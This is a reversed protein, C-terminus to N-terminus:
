SVVHVPLRTVFTTGHGLTSEVQISGGHEDIISQVVSLGLGTGQGLAKTTFFPDFIKAREQESIGCGSDAVTLIVESDTSQLRVSLTGGNPMVHIANMVLNLLVQQLHDKDGNVPPIPEAHSWELIIGREEIQEQVLLLTEAVVHPLVVPRYATSARQAFSLLDHIIKTMREIQAVIITLGNKTNEDSVRDLLLEARGLIVNMPTGIEHAMSASLTGLEALHQSRRLQEQSQTLETIDIGTAVVYEVSGDTDLIATNGWTIRRLVGGKSVWYNEFTNPFDGARLRAFVAKVPKVEEPILLFDWVHRNKVEAFAYGTSRECAPNFHIIRGESDLVCILGGTTERIAALLSHETHVQDELQQRETCDRLIVAYLKQETFEIQSLTAEVPFETGDGRLGTISQRDGMRRTTEGTEGFMRIHQQHARHFREPILRDITQGIMDPASCRFMLEAARNILVIRQDTNLAIIADMSSATIM